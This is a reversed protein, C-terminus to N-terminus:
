YRQISAFWSNKLLPPCLYKLTWCLFQISRIRKKQGDTETNEMTQKPAAPWLALTVFKPGNGHKIPWPRLAASTSTTGFGFTPALQRVCGRRGDSRSPPRAFQKLARRLLNDKSTPALPPREIWRMYPKRMFRCVGICLCPTSWTTGLHDVCVACFDVCLCVFVRECVVYVTCVCCLVSTCM